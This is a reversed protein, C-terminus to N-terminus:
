SHNLFVTAFLAFDLYHYLVYGVPNDSALFIVKPVYITTKSYLYKYIEYNDNRNNYRCIYPWKVNIYRIPVNQPWKTYIDRKPINHWSFDPLGSKFPFTSYWRMLLHRLAQRLEQGRLGQLPHGAFSRRSTLTSLPDINQDSNEAIKSLKPSKQCNRRNEGIEAIKAL